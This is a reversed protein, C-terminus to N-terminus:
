KKPAPTTHRFVVLDGICSYNPSYWIRQQTVSSSNYVSLPLIYASDFSKLHTIFDNAWTILNSKYDQVFDKPYINQTLKDIFHDVLYSILQYTQYM